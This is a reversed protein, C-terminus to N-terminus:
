MKVKIIILSAQDSARIHAHTLEVIWLNIHKVSSELVRMTYWTEGSSVRGNGKFTSQELELNVTKPNAGM